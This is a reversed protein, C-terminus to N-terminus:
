TLMGGPTSLVCAFSVSENVVEQKPEESMKRPRKAPPPQDEGDHQAQQLSSQINDNISSPSLPLKSKVDVESAHRGNIGNRIDTDMDYEQQLTSVVDAVPETPPSPAGNPAQEAM